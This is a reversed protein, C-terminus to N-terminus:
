SLDRKKDEFEQKDIEGRAYREKLIDIARSSSHPVLPGGGGKSQVLWKILLILGIILLVWFVTSLIMGVWGYGYLGGGYGPGMHWGGYGGGWQALAKQDLFLTSFLTLMGGALISRKRNGM